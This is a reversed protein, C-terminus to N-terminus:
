PLRVYQNFAKYPSGQPTGIGQIEVITNAVTLNSAHGSISWTVEGNAAAAVTFQNTGTTSLLTVAPTGTGTRLVIWTHVGAFEATGSTYGAVVLTIRMAAEAATMQVKFLATSAGIRASNIRDQVFCDLTKYPQAVEQSSLNSPMHQNWGSDVFPTAIGGDNYLDFRNSITGAAASGMSDVAECTMQVFNDNGALVVLGNKTQVAHHALVRCGIANTFKIATDCVYSKCGILSNYDTDPYTSSGGYANGFNFGISGAVSKGPGAAVVNSLRNWYNGVNTGIIDLNVGITFGDVWVDAITSQRLTGIDLGVAATGNQLIAFDHLEVRDVAGGGRVSQVSATGTMKLATTAMGSGIVTTKPNLQFVADKFVATGYPLQLPAGISEAYANAALIPATDNTVGDFKANYPGDKPNVPRNVSLAAAQAAAAANASDAAVLADFNGDLEAFTLARGAASRKVIPM